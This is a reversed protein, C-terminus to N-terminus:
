PKQYGGVVGLKYLIQVSAPILRLLTHQVIYVKVNVDLFLILRVNLLITKFLVNQASGM